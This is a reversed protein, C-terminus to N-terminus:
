KPESENCDAHYDVYFKVLQAQKGKSQEGNMSAGLRKKKIKDAVEEDFLVMAEADAESNAVALSIKLPEKRNPIYDTHMFIYAPWEGSAEKNTKWALM